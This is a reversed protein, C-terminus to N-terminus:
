SLRPPQWFDSAFNSFLKDQAAALPKAGYLIPRIITVSPLNVTYGICSNCTELPNCNGTCNKDCPSKGKQESPDEKNSCCKDCCDIKQNAYLYIAKLGPDISLFLIYFSWILAFFKMKLCFYKNSYVDCM